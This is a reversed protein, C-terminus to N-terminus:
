NGWRSAWECRRAIADMHRGLGRTDDDFMVRYVGEPEWSGGNPLPPWRLLRALRDDFTVPGDDDQLRVWERSQEDYAEIAVCGRALVAFWGSLDTPREARVVRRYRVRLVGHWRGSMPVTFTRSWDRRKRSVNRGM